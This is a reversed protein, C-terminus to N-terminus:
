KFVRLRLRKKRRKKGPRCGNFCKKDKTNLIINKKELNKNLFKIIRKRIRIPSIVEILINKRKKLYKQIDKFFTELIIKINYKLKKKSAAMKYKGSSVNLLIKNQNLEILTLFINNPKIRIHIKFNFNQLYQKIFLYKCNLLSPSDKYIRKQRLLSKIFKVKYRKKVSDFKYKKYSKPIM